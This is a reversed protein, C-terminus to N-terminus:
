RIGGGVPLRWRMADSQDLMGIDKGDQAKGDLIGLLAQSLGALKAIPVRRAARATVDVRQETEAVAKLDPGPAWFPQQACLREKFGCGCLAACLRMERETLEIAIAGDDLPIETAGRFMKAPSRTGTQCFGHDLVAKDQTPSLRIAPGRAAPERTRSAGIRAVANTQEAITERVADTPAEVTGIGLFKVTFRSPETVVSRAEFKGPM